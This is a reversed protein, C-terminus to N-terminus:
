HLEESTSVIDDEAPGVGLFSQVLAFQRLISQFIVIEDWDLSALDDDPTHWGPPFPYSILHLIPVGRRHFPVHDDQIGRSPPIAANNPFFPQHDPNAPDLQRQEQEFEMLMNYLETTEGFWNYFKMKTYGILDLLCLFRINKLNNEAEWKAALHRAGYLSDTETWQLFAEEGDFFVLQIAPATLTSRALNPNYHLHSAFAFMPTLYRALDLLLACPVASDTAGVFARGSPPFHKSDYHAAYIIREHTAGHPNLTAIINTFKKSGLPTAQTFEDLEVSWLVPFLETDVVYETNYVEFQKVIFERVAAHSPTDVVREVLIENLQDKVLDINVPDNLSFGNVVGSFLIMMFICLIGGRTPAMRSQLEM